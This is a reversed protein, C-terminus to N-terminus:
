DKFHTLKTFTKINIKRNEIVKRILKMMIGNWEFYWLHSM